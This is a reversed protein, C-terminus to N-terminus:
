KMTDPNVEIRRAANRDVLEFFHRLYDSLDAANLSIDGSWGLKTLREVPDAHADTSRQQAMQRWQV